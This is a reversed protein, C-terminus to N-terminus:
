FSFDSGGSNYDYEQQPPPTPEQSPFLPQPEPEQVTTSPRTGSGTSGGFDLTVTAAVVPPGSLIGTWSGLNSLIDFTFIGKSLGLGVTPNFDSQDAAYDIRLRADDNKTIDVRDGIIWNIGGRVTLMDFIWVDELDKELGLAIFHNIGRVKNITPNSSDPKDKYNSIGLNYLGTFLVDGLIETEFGAYANTVNNIQINDNEDMQYRLLNFILGIKWDASFFPMGAELGAKLFSGKELKNEVTEDGAEYKRKMSPFSIGFVPSFIFDGANINANVVAGFNSVRAKENIDGSSEEAKYSYKAKNLELFLDVGLQIIDLDLGFLVHPALPMQENIDIQTTLGNIRSITNEYFGETLVSNRTGAIGLNIMEGISKIGIFSASGTGGTAQILDPYQNMYGPLYFIKGPDSIINIGGLADIRANQAFTMSFLAATTFLGKFLFSRM